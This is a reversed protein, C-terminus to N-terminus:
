NMEQNIKLESRPIFHGVTASKTKGDEKKEIEIHM